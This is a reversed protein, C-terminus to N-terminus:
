PEDRGTASEARSRRAKGGRLTSLLHQSVVGVGTGLADALLDAAEATRGPVFAQHLEDSFGWLTGVCFAFGGTLLGPLSPWTQSAAGACLWGLVAYVVFHVGKDRLPMHQVIPVETQISSAVFILGMFLLPFRWNSLASFRSKPSSSM